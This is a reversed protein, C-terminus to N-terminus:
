LREVNIACIGKRNQGEDFRVKVGKTLVDDPDVQGALHFFFDTQGDVSIFGFAKEMDYFKVIGTKM